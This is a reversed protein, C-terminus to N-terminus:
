AINVIIRNLEAAQRVTNQTGGETGKYYAICYLASKAMSTNRVITCGNFYNFESIKIVVDARDMITKFYERSSKRWRSNHNACPLFLQLRIHPYRKKMELVEEACITDFGYAGGSIFDTVGKKVLINIKERLRVRLDAEEERPVNRHGTFFCARSIDM